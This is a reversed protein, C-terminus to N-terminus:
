EDLIKRCRTLLRPAGCDKAFQFLQAANSADVMSCLLHESYRALDVVGFRDAAVLVYTALQPDVAARSGTYVWELVLAFVKPTVAGCEDRLDVAASVSPSILGRSRLAHVSVDSVADPLLVDSDSDSDIADEFAAAGESFSGLLLAKFYPYRCLLCRHACMVELGGTAGLLVFAVDCDAGDRLLQGMDTAHTSPSTRLPAIGLRRTCEYALSPMQLQEALSSLEKLRYSNLDFRDSYAYSVLAKMTVFKVGQCRVVWVGPAVSKSKAKVSSEIKLPGAFAMHKSELEGASPQSSVLLPDCVAEVGPHTLSVADDGGSKCSAATPPVVHTADHAEAAHKALSFLVGSRARVISRHAVICRRGIMFVLDPFHCGQLGACWEASVVSPTSETCYMSGLKLAHNSWLQRTVCLSHKAGCAIVSGYEQELPGRILSPELPVVGGGKGLSANAGNWGWSLLDGTSLLVLTFLDGCCLQKVTVADSDPDMAGKRYPAPRVEVHSPIVLRQPYYYHRRRTEGGATHTSEFIGHQAYETHGWVFLEGRSVAVSHNSGCAVHTVPVAIRTVRCPELRDKTADGLGLQGLVGSGWGFLVGGGGAGDKTPSPVGIVLSHASGCAIDTVLVPQLARVHQFRSHNLRTGLGLQGRDNYGVSFVVGTATLALTHGYGATVQVVFQSSLSRVLRPTWQKRRRMDMKVMGTYAADKSGGHLYDMTSKSVMRRLYDNHSLTQALGPLNGMHVGDAKAEALGKSGISSPAEDVPFIQGWMYVSGCSTVCASHFAGCAVSVAVHEKLLDIKQPIQVQKQGKGSNSNKDSSIWDTALGLQGESGRGWAFIDGFETVFLTHRGGAAVCKIDLGDLFQIRRPLFESHKPLAMAANTVRGSSPASAAAASVASMLKPTSGFIQQSQVASTAQIDGWIFTSM